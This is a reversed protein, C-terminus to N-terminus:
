TIEHVILHFKSVILRSVTIVKPALEYVSSLLQCIFSDMKPLNYVM